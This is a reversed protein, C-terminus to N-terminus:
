EYDRWPTPPEFLGYFWCGTSFFLDGTWYRIGTDREGFIIHSVEIFVWAIWDTVWCAAKKM